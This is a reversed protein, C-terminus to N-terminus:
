VAAMTIGAAEANVLEAYFVCQLDTITGSKVLTVQIDFTNVQSSSGTVASVGYALTLTGGGSDTSIQALTLTAAAPLTGDGTKRSLVVMGQACRTSEFQDTGTGLSAVLMIRIAAAHNANPVTVTILSTASSDAIGTKKGILNQLSTVEGVGSYKGGSLMMFDAAAGADGLTYTRAAAQSRNTITTTTDGANDAATIRTKGSTVDPPFIDVTGVQGSSGLDIDGGGVVIDGSVSINGASGPQAIKLAGNSDYSRTAYTSSDPASQIVYDVSAADTAIGKLVDDGDLALGQVEIQENASLVWRGIRRSTGGGPLLSLTVTEGQGGVNQLLINVKGSIKDTTLVTATAALQGSALTQKLM